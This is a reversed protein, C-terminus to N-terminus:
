NPGQFILVFRLARSGGSCPFGHELFHSKPTKYGLSFTNALGKGCHLQLTLDAAASRRVVYTPFTGYEKAM